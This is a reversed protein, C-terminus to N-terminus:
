RWASRYAVSLTTAGTGSAGGFVIINSGVELFFWNPSTLTNRRNLNGNLYVTRNVTDVTLTEGVALSITFGLSKGVTSNTIVPNDIPGTITFVAPTPRNGSNTVTGGSPTAGGGFNVNFGVNFALGLGASGGYALVLNNLTSEYIRPDEAYMLFQAQTMGLRRATDWDYRVGRPKVFVVREVVGPAKLYFPVPATVPAFNAKLLDLYTEVTGINAYIVGELIIDRGKEFEADIFGGDTGEHDRLTERYPANDLGSVKTIDVFPTSADTNLAVGTNTLQFTYDNLGISM